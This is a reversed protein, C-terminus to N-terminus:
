SNLLICVKKRRCYYLQLLVYFQWALSCKEAEKTTLTPWTVMNEGPAHTSHTIEPGPGHPM